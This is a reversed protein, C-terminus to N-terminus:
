QSTLYGVVACLFALSIHIAPVSNHSNGYQLLVSLTQFTLHVGYAQKQNALGLQNTQPTHGSRSQSSVMAMFAPDGYNFVSALNCSMIYATHQGQHGHHQLYLPLLSLFDNTLTMFRQISDGALLVCHAAIFSTTMTIKRPASNAWDNFFRGFTVRTDPFPQVSILAKTLYFLTRLPDSQSLVAVHHQFKGSGPHRDAAKQYWYQSMFKWHRSDMKAAFMGYRAVDGLQEFLSDGLASNSLVLRKLVLSVMEIFCLMHKSTEPLNRQLIELLSHIGYRWMRDSM